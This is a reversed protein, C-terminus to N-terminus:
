AVSVSRQVIRSRCESTINSVLRIVIITIVYSRMCKVKMTIDNRNLFFLTCNVQFVFKKSEREREAKM